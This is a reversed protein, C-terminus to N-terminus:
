RPGFAHGETPVALLEDARRIEEAKSAWHVHIRPLLTYSISGPGGGGGCPSLLAGSVTAAGLLKTINMAKINPNRM